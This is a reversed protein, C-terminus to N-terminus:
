AGSREREYYVGASFMDFAVTMLLGPVPMGKLAYLTSTAAVAKATEILEDYDLELGVLVRRYEEESADTGLRGAMGGAIPADKREQMDLIARGVTLNARAAM